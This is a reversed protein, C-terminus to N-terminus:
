RSKRSIVWQVVTSFIQSLKYRGGILISDGRQGLKVFSGRKIILNKSVGIGRICTKLCYVGDMLTIGNQNRWHFHRQIDTIDIWGRKNKDRHLRIVRSM